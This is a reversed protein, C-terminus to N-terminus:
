HKTQRKSKRIVIAGILVACLVGAGVVGYIIIKNNDNSYVDASVVKSEKAKKNVQIKYYMSSDSNDSTVTITITNEGEQLNDNGEIKVNTNEDLTLLDIDIKNVDNYVECSYFFIDKNFEPSIEIEYKDKNNEVAVLSLSKLKLSEGAVKKNVKIIYTRKLGNEATVVIEIENEGSQLRVEGNGDVKARSDDTTANIKISEDTITQEISYKVTQKDFEQSLKYGDVTLSSLYNNSSKGIAEQDRVQQEKLQENALRDAEEDTWDAMGASCKTTTIICILCAVLIAIAAKIKM